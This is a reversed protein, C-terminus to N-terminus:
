TFGSGATCAFCHDSVAIASGPAPLDVLETLHQRRGGMFLRRALNFDCDFLYGDWSVSLLTRCMLGELTCPNFGAELKKSYSELNGTRELWQQFRGLPVNNFTYLHNFVIGWREQISERFRKETQAQPPALFAGTPNAVLNLELGSESHGYGLANLRRLTALSQQFVGGGRQADLQAESTSPFSAVIVVRHRKLDNLLSGLHSETVATLNSRLMLRPTLLTLSSILHTLCPNLEPAGGTIDIAAFSHRRALHIVEDAVDLTM